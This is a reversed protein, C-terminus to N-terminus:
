PGEGDLEFHPLPIGPAFEGFCPEVTQLADAAEFGGVALAPEGGRGVDAACGAADADDGLVLRRLDTDGVVDGDERWGACLVLLVHRKAADHAVGSPGRKAADHAVGSPGRKAAD